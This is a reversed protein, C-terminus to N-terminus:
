PTQEMAKRLAQYAALMPREGNKKMLAATDAILMARLWEERPTEPLTM